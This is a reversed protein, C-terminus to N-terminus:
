VGFAQLTKAMSLKRQREIPVAEELQRLKKPRTMAYLTGFVSLGANHRVKEENSLSEWDKVCILKGAAKRATRRIRKLAPDRTGVIESDSLLKIGVGRVCGFVRKSERQQMRMATYLKSRGVTQIDQGIIESLEPYQVLEGVDEVENLRNYVLWADASTQSIPKGPM